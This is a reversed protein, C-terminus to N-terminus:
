GDGPLGSVRWRKYMRDMVEIKEAWSANPNAGLWNEIEKHARANRARYHLESISKASSLPLLGLQRRAINISELLGPQESQYQHRPPPIPTQTDVLTTSRTPTPKPAGTGISNGPPLARPAPPPAPPQRGITRYGNKSSILARFGNQLVKLWGLGPLSTSHAEGNPSRYAFAFSTVEGYIDTLVTYFSWESGFVSLDPEAHLEAPGVYMRHYKLIEDQTLVLAMASPRGILIHSAKIDGCYGVVTTNNDVLPAFGAGRALGSWKKEWPTAFQQFKQDSKEWIDIERLGSGNLEWAKHFKRTDTEKGSPSGMSTRPVAPGRAIKNSIKAWEAQTPMRGSGGFRSFSRHYDSTNASM